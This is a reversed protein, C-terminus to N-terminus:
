GRDPMLATFLLRPAEGRAVRVVANQGFRAALDLAAEEPLDLVFVGAETWDSGEGRGEHALWQRGAAALAAELRRAAAENGARPRRESRPNWATMFTGSGAGHAALLADMEASPVGIRAVIERGGDCVVYRTARYAAILAGRDKETM